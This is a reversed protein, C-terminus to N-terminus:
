EAAQATAAAQLVLTFVAGGGPDNAVRLDGGFDKMINYSISLGLGLGAGVRKTTFFPDFIRAAIAAPVGPGHDRVRLLVRNGQVAASLAIRREGEAEVADAANALVNALVQQLRVPGGRVPPLGAPIDVAVAIGALRPALTALAEEVAPGLALDQLPAEPKRAVNRLHRAIAAMRDILAVIQALNEAARASDGRELLLGASDAFNRAAALPQNIEHSLAASLTGLAALKGAQVLDDQTRRLAEEAAVREAVEAGLRTNLRALDATREAVRAELEAKARSRRRRRQLAVGAAGTVLLAALLGAAAALRAAARMPQTDLLVQVTWGAPPMLRRAVVYEGAAPDGAEVRLVPLGGARGQSLPLTGVPMEAYRRAAASRAVLARDRPTTARFLWRPDSSLFVIGEPDTVLIRAEQRRWDAEVEDLGVTVAVVGTVAQAANRVPAAFYYGRLGAPAVIGYFQGRGGEMARTFHPFAALSRGIASDRRDHNSAGRVRGDPDAVVIAAADLQLARASLWRNLAMGLGPDGPADAAAQVAPHEALLAPVAEFRRLHGDLARLTLALTAEARAQGEALRLRLAVAHIAGAVALALGLALAVAAGRAARTM